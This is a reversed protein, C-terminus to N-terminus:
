IIKIKLNIKDIFETPCGEFMNDRDATTSIKFNSLDLEKLSSCFSFCKYMKRIKSTDFNSLKVEKLSTCRFFM